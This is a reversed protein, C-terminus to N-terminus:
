RAGNTCITVGVDEATVGSLGHCPEDSTPRCRCPSAVALDPLHPGGLKGIPLRVAMKEIHDVHGPHLGYRMPRSGAEPRAQLLSVEASMGDRSEHLHRPVRRRSRGPSATRQPRARSPERSKRCVHRSVTSRRGLAEDGSARARMRPCFRRSVLGSSKIRRSSCRRPRRYRM